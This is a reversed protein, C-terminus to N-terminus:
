HSVGGHTSRHTSGRGQCDGRSVILVSGPILRYLRIGEVLRCVTEQQFTVPPLRRRSIRGNSYLVVISRADGVIGMDLLPPFQRELHFFPLDVIPTCCIAIFLSAGIILRM